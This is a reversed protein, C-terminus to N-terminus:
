RPPLHEVEHDRMVVGGRLRDGTLRHRVGFDMGGEGMHAFAGLRDDTVADVPFHPHQAVALRDLAPGVAAHRQEAIGRVRHQLIHRLAGAHRHLVRHAQRLRQGIMGAADFCAELSIAGPAQQARSAQLQHRAGHALM